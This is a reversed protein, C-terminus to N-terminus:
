YLLSYLKRRAKTAIPDGKAATALIDMMVKKVEGDLANLDKILVALLLELAEENQQAQHLQVALKLSISPDGPQKDLEARLAQIEPTEAAQKNLELKAQLSQYYDDQNVMPIKDLLAEAETNQGLNLLVDILLKQTEDRQPAIEYAERAPILADAFNDDAILASVQKILADEPKPLYPEFFNQLEADSQDGAFGNIGKGDQFVICTPLSQVGFQMALQQMQPDDCNVRALTVSDQAGAVLNSLKQSLQTSQESQQTYFDIVVVKEQSGQLIVQQFNEANIEVVNTNEGAANIPQM